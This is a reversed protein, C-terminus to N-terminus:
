AVANWILGAVMAGGLGLGVYLAFVRPRVLSWVAAMAPISSVAGATLFALAAGATMGQEMLGAVLAPAAYGNLYAPMGVLAATVVPLVGAGGVVAGVAEAPVYRVLVAELLYALTMWKLLFLASEAAQAGFTARRDAETWFRWVPRGSLPSPGCGCRAGPATPRLVAGLAGARMALATVTGGAIGIGIAGAAKALAMPWGLAGATIMLTPPDMLPSALWFAMIASVPAGAALLGAVFPIVECSCFPALGGILAAAVIMRAENGEFARAITAEAGAARMAAILLVAFVIFPVTGALAAAAFRIVEGTAAPDLAVVLAVVAASLTWATRLRPLAPLSQTLDAM